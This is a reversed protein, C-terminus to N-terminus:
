EYYRGKKNTIIIKNIDTNYVFNLKSLIKSSTLGLKTIGGTIILTIKKNLLINEIRGRAISPFLRKNPSILGANKNFLKNLMKPVMGSHMHGSLLLDYEKLIILVEKDTLRIPSHILSIKPISIPLNTTLKKYKKIHDMLMEKSENKSMNYYYSTPLTFGSIYILEDMYSENNLVYINKLDNLNKFFKYDEDRFVDHNGLSIIVKSFKALETLFILLRKINIKDKSVTPNDLIDGTILIYDPNNKHIEEKILNLRSDKTYKNFHIDGIHIIVIDNNIKSNYIIDKHVEIKNM